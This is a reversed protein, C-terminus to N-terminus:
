SEKAKPELELNTETTTGGAKGGTKMYAEEPKVRQSSAEATAVVTANDVTDEDHILGYEDAVAGPHEGRVCMEAITFALRPTYHQTPSSSGTRDEDDHDRGASGRSHEPLASM